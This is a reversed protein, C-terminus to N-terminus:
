SFRYNSRKLLSYIVATAVVLLLLPLFLLVRSYSKVGEAAILATKDGTLNKARALTLQQSLLANENDTLIALRKGTLANYLNFTRAIPYWYEFEHTSTKFLAKAYFRNNHILLVNTGFLSNNDLNFLTSEELNINKGFIIENEDDFQYDALKIDWFSREIDRIVDNNASRLDASITQINQRDINQALQWVVVTLTTIAVLSLALAFKHLSFFRLFRSM